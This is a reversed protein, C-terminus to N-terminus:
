RRHHPVPVARLRRHGAAARAGGAHSPVQPSPVSFLSPRPAVHPRCFLGVSSLHPSVVGRAALAERMSLLEDSSPSGPAVWRRAIIDTAWREGFPGLSRVIAQPTVGNEWSARLLMLLFSSNQWKALAAPDPPHPIGAPSALVLHTVAHPHHLTYAGAGTALRLCRPVVDSVVVSAVDRRRGSSPPPAAYLHPIRLACGGSLYGGLSHGVLVFPTSGLGQAQRWAELSETFFREGVLLLPPPSSRATLPLFAVTRFAAASLATSPWDLLVCVSVARRPGRMRKVLQKYEGEHVTRATWRPRESAGCGLWDVCYIQAAPCAPSLPCV